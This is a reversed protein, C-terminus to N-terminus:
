RFPDGRWGRASVIDAGWCHGTPSSGQNRGFYFPIVALLPGGPLPEHLLLSSVAEWGEVRDLSAAPLAAQAAASM